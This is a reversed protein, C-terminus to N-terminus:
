GRQGTEEKACEIIMSTLKNIRYQKTKVDDNSFGVIHELAGGPLICDMSDFKKTVPNVRQLFVNVYDTDDNEKRFVDSYVIETGDPETIFPYLM